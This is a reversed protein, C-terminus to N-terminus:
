MTCQITVFQTNYMSEKLITVDRPDKIHTTIFSRRTKLQLSQIHDNAHQQLQMVFETDLIQKIHNRHVVELCFLFKSAEM